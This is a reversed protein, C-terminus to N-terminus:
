GLAAPGGKDYHEKQPINIRATNIAGFPADAHQPVQCTLPLVRLCLLAMACLSPAGPPVGGQQGERQRDM